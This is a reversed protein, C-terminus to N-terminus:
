FLKLLHGALKGLLPHIFNAGQEVVFKVTPERAAHELAKMMGIPKVPSMMNSSSPVIGTVAQSGASLNPKGELHYILELDFTSTAAVGGTYYVYVAEQGRLELYDSDGFSATGLAQTIADTGIVNDSADRFNLADPSCLRPRIEIINESAEIASIVRSGPLNVFNGPSSTAGNYPVGWAKETAIKSFAANTAMTNGGVTFDKTIWASTVPYTGVIFKGSANTMSSLGTVRVGYGVVRYNDLKGAFITPDVGWRSQAFTTGDGWTTTSFEGSNGNLLYTSAVPNPFVLACANGSANATITLSARVTQTTTPCSYQDPVKAGLAAEAFPDTLAMYYKLVEVDLGDSQDKYYQKLKNRTSGKGPSVQKNKQTQIGVM